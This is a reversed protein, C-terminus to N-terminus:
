SGGANSVRGPDSAIADEEQFGLTQDGAIVAKGPGEAM